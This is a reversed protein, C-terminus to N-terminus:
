HKQSLCERNNITTQARKTDNWIANIHSCSSPLACTRHYFLVIINFTNQGDDDDDDYTSRTSRDEYRRLKMSSSSIHSRQSTRLRLTICRQKHCQELSSMGTNLVVVVVRRVCTAKENIIYIYPM